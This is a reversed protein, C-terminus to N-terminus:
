LNRFLHVELHVLQTSIHSIYYKFLFPAMGAMGRKSPAIEYCNIMFTLIITSLLFVFPSGDWNGDWKARREERDCILYGDGSCGGDARLKVRTEYCSLLLQCVTCSGVADHCLNRSIRLSPEAAKCNVVLRVLVAVAHSRHLSLVDPDAGHDVLLALREHLAQLVAELGLVGDHAFLSM